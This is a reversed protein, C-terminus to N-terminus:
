RPRRHPRNGVPRRGRHARAAHRERGAAPPPRRGARRPRRQTIAPDTTFLLAVDVDGALLAQRTIPVGPDLPLLARVDAGYVRSSASSAPRDPRASRRGASRSSRARGAGPRERTRLGYRQAVESTVVFTNADQAPSPALAAFPSPRRPGAGPRRPDGRHGDSPAPPAWASSSRPPGPTSPSSSSWAARCRPVSSSGPGLSLARHVPIAASRRPGPQLDRRPAPERRLRVLRRHHHRRRPREGTRPRECGCQMRATLVLAGAALLALGPHRRLRSRPSPRHDRAVAAPPRVASPAPDPGDPVARRSAPRRPIPLHVVINAAAGIVLGLACGAIVDLPNHAGVYVRGICVGAVLLWPVLRWRGRLYPTTIVALSAILVAHGSPFSQGGAPVDGRLVADPVTTGPRDRVVLRKM